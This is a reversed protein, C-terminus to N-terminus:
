PGWTSRRRRARCARWPFAPQTSLRHTLLPLGLCTPLSRSIVMKSRRTRSRSCNGNCPIWGPQRKPPSQFSPHTSCPRTKRSSTAVGPNFRSFSTLQARLVRPAVCVAGRREHNPHYWADAHYRDSPVKAHATRGQSIMDWFKEVTSAEGPFRGAMGVIAIPEVADGYNPQEQSPLM